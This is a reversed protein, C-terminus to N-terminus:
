GSGSAGRMVAWHDVQDAARRGGATREIVAPRGCEGDAAVFGDRLRAFRDGRGRGRVGSRRPRLHETHDRAM